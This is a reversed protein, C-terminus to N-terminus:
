FVFFAALFIGIMLFAVGVKVGVGIIFGIWAGAGIGVARALDRTTSLEGLVAGVFPGVILGPLGLVLGLATGLAAGAMARRSAGFRGAGLAAAALDIGYSAVTLLGLVVLTVAGVRMFGDAWAALLLGAFILVTGPLAPFVIGALGIGILVVALVWLLITM